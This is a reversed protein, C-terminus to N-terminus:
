VDQICWIGCKKLMIMQETHNVVVVKMMKSTRTGEKVRKHWWSFGSSKMTEGGMFTPSCQVLTM